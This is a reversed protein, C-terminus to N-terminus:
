ILYDLIKYFFFFLISHIIIHLIANFFAIMNPIKIYIQEFFLKLIPDSNLNTFLLLYTIYGIIVIFSFITWMIFLHGYCCDLLFLKENKILVIVDEKEIEIKENKLMMRLFLCKEHQESNKQKDSLTVM